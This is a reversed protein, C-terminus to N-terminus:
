YYPTYEHQPPAITHVSVHYLLVIILFSNYVQHVSPLAFYYLQRLSFCLLHIVM